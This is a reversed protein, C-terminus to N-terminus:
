RTTEEHREAGGNEPVGITIVVKQSSGDPTPLIIVIPSNMDSGVCDVVFFPPVLAPTETFLYM